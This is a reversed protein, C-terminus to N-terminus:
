RNNMSLTTTREVSRNTNLDTVRLRLTYEGGTNGFGDLVLYDVQTPRAAVNRDFSVTLQDDRTSGQTILGGLGDLLRLAFAAAGRRKNRTVTVAVRYHNASAASALAYTEWVLGIREGAGYVGASPTVGLDSWRKVNATTVERATANVNTLLVDSVGFSADRDVTAPVLASATRNISEDLVDLKAFTAGTGLRQVWTRPTVRTEALASRASDLEVVRAAGDILRLSVLVEGRAAAEAIEAARSSDRLAARSPLEAALVVDASDSPGRFRTVRLPIAGVRKPGAVNDFVAPKMSQVDKVFQQDTLPTRATGFGQAMDFFFVIGSRYLWALTAGGEQSSSRMGGPPGKGGAWYDEPLEASPSLDQMVSSIGTLTMENDPPGYRIFIDGRDTDAGRLGLAEDTWSWDAQAVRAIFELEAENEMTAPNPDNLAWFMVRMAERQASPLARFTVVDMENREGTLMNVGPSLLRDLRFLEAKASDDMGMLASDFAARAAKTRGLRVLAVSRAMRAQADFDSQRARATAVALLEEWQRGTALAMYLHRSYRLQSPAVTSALRFQRLATEFDTQGTPPEIKHAFTELFDKAQARSFRNKTQLQMHQGAGVAARNATTERRRWAALGVEDAALGLWASDGAQAAAEQASAMQQTAAFRMTAVDSQLNFQALTIWYSASDRAFQTALRLASDALRLTRIAQQDAMFGGHRKAAVQQWLLVGYRHWVAANTSRPAVAAALVALAQTTDGLATLSDARQVVPDTSARLTPPMNQAGLVPAVGVSASITAIATILMCARTSRRPPLTPTLDVRQPVLSQAVCSDSQRM